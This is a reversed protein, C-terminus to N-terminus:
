TRRKRLHRRRRVLQTHAPIYSHQIYIIYIYITDIYVHTFVHTHTLSLSLARARARTRKTTCVCVCVCACVCVCVCVCVGADQVALKYQDAAQKVDEEVMEQIRVYVLSHAIEVAQNEIFILTM